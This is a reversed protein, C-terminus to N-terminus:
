LNHCWVWVNNMTAGDWVWVNAPQLAQTLVSGCVMDKQLAFSTTCFRILDPLQRALEPGQRVDEPGWVLGTCRDAVGGLSADLLVCFHQVTNAFGLLSLGMQWM